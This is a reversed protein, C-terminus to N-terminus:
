QKVGEVYKNVEHNAERAAANSRKIEILVHRGKEDKAYLDIFGKTGHKNPIYQEKNLLTLGPKLKCINQAILNQLAIEEM